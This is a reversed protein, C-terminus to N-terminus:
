ILRKEVSPIIECSRIGDHASEMHLVKIDVSCKKEKLGEIIGNIELCKDKLKQVLKEEDM